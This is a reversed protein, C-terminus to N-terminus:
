TSSALSFNLDGEAAPSIMVTGMKMESKRNVFWEANSAFGVLYWKGAMQFLCRSCPESKLSKWCLINLIITEYRRWMLIRSLCQLPASPWRSSCPSWCRWRHADQPLSLTLSLCCLSPAKIQEAGGDNSNRRKRTYSEVRRGMWVTVEVLIFVCM